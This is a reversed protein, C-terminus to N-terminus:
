ATQIRVTKHVPGPVSSRRRAAITVLGGSVRIATVSYGTLAPVRFRRFTRGGDKTMWLSVTGWGCAPCSGTFYADRSGHLTWVGLYSDLEHPAKVGFLPESLVLHWTHGDDGSRAGVYAEQSMGAGNDWVAWITSGSCQVAAGPGGKPHVYHGPERYVTRGSADLLRVGQSRVGCRSGGNVAPSSGAGSRVTGPSGRGV